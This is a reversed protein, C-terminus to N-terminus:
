DLCPAPQPGSNFMYDVLFVLDSIDIDPGSVLNAEKFCVPEPGNNFMYDVLYVLDSITIQDDPDADINGRYGLCCSACLVSGNRPIPQYDLISGYYMPQYSLYGELNISTLQGLEAEPPTSFFLKFVPGTGPPLEQSLGSLTSMLKFTTRRSIPSYQIQAVYEFYDTRCGATSFSDLSLELDGGFQVPIKIQRVPTSNRAYIIVELVSDPVVTYDETALTDAIAIILGTRVMTRTKEGANIQLSVDYRGPADYTHTPFQIFASDGDGFDYTWDDVSLDSSGEFQVDLPLWGLTTDATFAIERDPIIRTLMMQDSATCGEWPCYPQDVTYWTTHSSNWGYNFHLQNVDDVIRYGDSVIAHYTIRYAVPRSNDIEVRAFDFWEQQTNGSRDIRLVSDKYRYYMPFVWEGSFVYAGSGCRGYHMHYAVGVEYCLNATAEQQEMPSGTTVADPINSWDYSDNCDVSLYMGPTSGGCSNDGNWWYLPIGDGFPPWEHYDLIMAAATAVCGVVTQGGDGMPCYMKYPDGQHWSATLLPGVEVVSGRSSGALYADFTERSVAYRDWQARYETGFPIEGRTPQTADISGYLETFVRVGDLLIERFLAAPGNEETIDLNYDESCAKVPPLEKLIPVVVYGQPEVSYFWGVLTDHTIIEQAGAIYPSPDGSWSGRQHVINSIWNECVQDAETRDAREANIVPTMMLFAALLAALTRKLSIIYRM